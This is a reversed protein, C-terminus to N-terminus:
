SNGHSNEMTIHIKCLDAWQNGMKHLGKHTEGRQWIGIGQEIFKAELSEQLGTRLAPTLNICGRFGLPNTDMVRQYVLM